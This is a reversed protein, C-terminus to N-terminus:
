GVLLTILNGSALLILMSFLFGNILLIFRNIHPEHKMYIPIYLNTAAGILLTILIFKFSLTDLSIVVQTQLNDFVQQQLHCIISASFLDKKYLYFLQYSLAVWMFVLWVKPTYWENTRFKSDATVNLESKQVCLQLLTVALSSFLLVSFAYTHPSILGSWFAEVVVLRSDVATFCTLYWWPLYGCTVKYSIYTLITFIWTATTYGFFFVFVGTYFFM